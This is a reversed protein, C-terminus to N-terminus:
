IDAVVTSFLVPLGFATVGLLGSLVFLVPRPQATVLTLYGLVVVIPVGVIVSYLRARPSEPVTSAQSVQWMLTAGVASGLSSVSDPSANAVTVAGSATITAIWFSRQSNGGSLRFVGGLYVVGILTGAIVDIPYHVGLVIRSLGILLILMGGGIVRWIRRYEVFVIAISGYVVTAIIGHGSPFGLGEATIIQYAPPPRPLAFLAKFGVILAAGGLAVSIVFAIREDGDLWYLLALGVLLVGPNGFYTLLIVVPYLMSPILQQVTEIHDVDRLVVLGLATAKM